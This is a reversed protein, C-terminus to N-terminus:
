GGREVRRAFWHVLSLFARDEDPPGVLQVGVPLGRPGRGVPWHVAPAGIVNWTRIFVPDGTANLGEPAEGPVAPAIALTQPDVLSRWAQRAQERTQLAARYTVESVAAGKDLLERFIPSLKTEHDRRISAAQRAAEFHIITASAEVLDSFPPGADYEDVRVGAERVAAAAADMAALTEPLARGYELPRFLLARRPAHPTLSGNAPGLVADVLALDDVSRAFVSLTDVTPYLKLSGTIDWRGHSPKFAPVGCFSAPRITSGAAQTGISIPIMGDAVAAASGSSSGGPTHAPNHPNRTKGPTFYAFETTVNKGLIIAGARELERICAADAAPQRDAFAASGWRTPMSATDIIDKIGVPIGHLPGQETAADLTRARRRAGEVDIFEWAGVTEEREGIRALCAEVLEEASIERRGLLARAEGATLKWLEHM